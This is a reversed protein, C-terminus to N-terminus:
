RLQALAGALADLSSIRAHYADPGPRNAIELTTAEGRNKRDLWIARLGAARAGAVDHALDDGIHVVRDAEINNGAIGGAQELAANFAVPHPKGHSLEETAIAFSFYKGIPIRALDANGNSLAGLIVKGHLAQLNKEVDDYCAVQQRLEFFYDFASQAIAIAETTSYGASEALLRYTNQRIESVRHAAINQQRVLEIRRKFMEQLSYKDTLRPAHQELWAYTKHEANELVPRSPWLTDDLDFLLLQFHQTFNAATSNM